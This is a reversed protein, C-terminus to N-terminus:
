KVKSKTLKIFGLELVFYNKDPKEYVNAYQVGPFVLSLTKYNIHRIPCIYFYKFIFPKTTLFDKRIRNTPVYIEEPVLFGIELWQDLNLKQKKKKKIDSLGIVLDHKNQNKIQNKPIKQHKNNQNMMMMLYTKLKM